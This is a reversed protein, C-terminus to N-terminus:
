NIAFLVFEKVNNASEGRTVGCWDDIVATFPLRRDCIQGCSIPFKSARLCCFIWTIEISKTLQSYFRALSFVDTITGICHYNRHIFCVRCNKRYKSYFFCFFFGSVHNIHQANSEHSRMLYQMSWLYFQLLFKSIKNAFSIRIDFRMQTPEINAM